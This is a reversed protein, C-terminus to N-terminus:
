HFKTVHLQAFCTVAPLLWHFLLFILVAKRPQRIKRKKKKWSASGAIRGRKRECDPTGASWFLLSQESAFAALAHRLSVSSCLMLATSDSLSLVALNVLYACSPLACSCRKHEQAPRRSALCFHTCTATGLCTGSPRKLLCWPHCVAFTFLVPPVPLALAETCFLLM